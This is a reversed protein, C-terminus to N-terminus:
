RRLMKDSQSQVDVEARMQRPRWRLDKLYFAKLISQFLFAQLNVHGLRRKLPPQKCSVKKCRGWLSAEWRCKSSLPWKTAVNVLVRSRLEQLPSEPVLCAEQVVNASYTRNFGSVGLPVGSSLAEHLEQSQVTGWVEVELVRVVGRRLDQLQKTVRGSRSWLLLGSSSSALQGVPHYLDLEFEDGAFSVVSRLDEVDKKKSFHRMKTIVGKPKYYKVLLPLRYDRREVTPRLRFLKRGRGDEIRMGQVSDGRRFEGKLEPPVELLGREPGDFDVWVGKNNIQAVIGDVLDGVELDNHGPRTEQKPQEVKPAKSRSKPVAKPAKEPQMPEEVKPPREDMDATMTQLSVMEPDAIASDLDEIILRVRKNEVDVTAICLDRLVQGRLLQNGLFRPVALRGHCNHAGINVFIGFQNKADVVGNVYNGEQLEQHLVEPLSTSMWIYRVTARRMKLDVSVVQMDELVDGRRFRRWFRRPIALIVNQEYGIDAFVGYDGVNVVVGDIMSEEELEDFKKGQPHSWDKKRPPNAQRVPPRGTSAARRRRPEPAAQIPERGRGPASSTRRDQEQNNRRGRSPPRQQEQRRRPGREM